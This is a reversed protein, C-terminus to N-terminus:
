GGVRRLHPITKLLYCMIVDEFKINALSTMELEV